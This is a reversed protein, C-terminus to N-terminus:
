PPSSPRSSHHRVHFLEDSDKASDLRKAIVSVQELSLDFHEALLQAKHADHAAQVWTAVGQFVGPKTVTANVEHFSVLSYPDSANWMRLAQPVASPTSPRTLTLDM